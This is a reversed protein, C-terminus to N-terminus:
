GGSRFFAALGTIAGSVAAGVGAGWKAGSAAADAARAELVAVKAPIGTVADEIRDLQAKVGLQREEIVATKTVVAALHDALDHLRQRTLDADDM